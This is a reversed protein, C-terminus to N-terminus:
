PLAEIDAATCDKPARIPNCRAPEGDTMDFWYDRDSVPAPYDSSLFNAGSALSAALKDANDADSDEASDVNSTVVFGAIVLEAVAAADTQADNIKFFAAFPDDASDSDVFMLRGELNDAGDLYDERHADSDLLSFIVRGRLEGLTPWGDAAIAQPLTDHAGRVEDPTLVRDIPFVSLIEAELDGYRGTISELTFDLIDV